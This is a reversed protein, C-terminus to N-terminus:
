QILGGRGGTSIRSLPRSAWCASGMHVGARAGSAADRSLCSPVCFLITVIKKRLATVSQADDDIRPAGNVLLRRNCYSCCSREFVIGPTSFLAFVSVEFAVSACAWSLAVVGRGRGIVSDMVM